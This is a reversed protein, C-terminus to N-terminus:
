VLDGPWRLARMSRQARIIRLVTPQHSLRHGPSCPFLLALLLTPPCVWIHAPGSMLALGLGAPFIVGDRAVELNASGARLTIRLDFTSALTPAM